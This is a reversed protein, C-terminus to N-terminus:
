PNRVAITQSFTARLVEGQEGQASVADVSSATVSIRLAKVADAGIQPAAVYREPGSGDGPTSDVGYLIQLDEIGSVLQRSRGDSGGSGSSTRRWLSWIPEGRNSAGSGEAVFYVDRRIAAAQMCLGGASADQARLFVVVDSGARMRRGGFGALADFRRPVGDFGTAADPLAGGVVACGPYGAARASRGLFHFAHRASEQLRAQGALMRYSRSSSAYLEALMATALAGLLAALMVEILSFGRIRWAM